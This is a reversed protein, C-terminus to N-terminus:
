SRLSPTGGADTCNPAPAPTGVLPLPVTWRPNPPDVRTQAVQFGRQQYNALAHPHDHSCTTLWVLGAGMSWAREVVVSLFHGGLRQGVFQPLLGFCEIRVSGDPQRELEAYG